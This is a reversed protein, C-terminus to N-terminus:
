KALRPHKRGVHESLARRVPRWTPGKANWPCSLCQATVREPLKKPRPRLWYPRKTARRTVGKMGRVTQGSGPFLPGIKMKRLAGMTAEYSPQHKWELNPETRSM